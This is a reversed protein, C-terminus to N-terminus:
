WAPQEPWIIRALDPLWTRALVFLIIAAVLCAFTMTLVALMCHCLSLPWNRQTRGARGADVEEYSMLRTLRYGRLPVPAPLERLATNGEGDPVRVAVVLEVPQRAAGSPAHKEHKESPTTVPLPLSM